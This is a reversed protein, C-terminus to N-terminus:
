ETPEEPSTEAPPESAGSGNPDPAPSDSDTVASLSPAGDWTFGRYPEGLGAHILKRSGLPEALKIAGWKFAAAPNAPCDEADPVKITYAGITVKSGSEDLTFGAPGYCKADGAVYVVQIETADKDPESALAWPASVWETQPKAETPLVEDLGEPVGDDEAPAPIMANMLVGDDEFPDGSERGGGSGCASLGLVAATAIVTMWPANRM